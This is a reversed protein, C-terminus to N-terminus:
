SVATVHLVASVTRGTVGTVVAQIEPYPQVLTENNWKGNYTTWTSTESVTALLVWPTTNCVRGLIVMTFTGVTDLDDTSSTSVLVKDSGFRHQTHVPIPSFAAGDPGVLSTATDFYSGNPILREPRPYFTM